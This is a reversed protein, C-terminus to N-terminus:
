QSKKESATKGGWNIDFGDSHHRMGFVRLGFNKLESDNRKFDGSRLCERVVRVFELPESEIRHTYDHNIEILSRNSM